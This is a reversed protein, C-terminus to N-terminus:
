DYEIESRVELTDFNNTNIADVTQVLTSTLARSHVSYTDGYYKVLPDMQREKLNRLSAVDGRLLLTNRETEATFKQLLSGISAQSTSTQQLEKHM